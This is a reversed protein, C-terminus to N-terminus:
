EDLVARVLLGCYRSDFGVVTGGSWSEFYWAEGIKYEDEAIYNSWYRCTDDAFIRDKDAAGAAPFFLVKSSDTKDTLIVGKVGSGQYSNTWASTTSNILTEFETKSPTKWNGGWTVTAGDDESELTYLEDSNNYKLSSCDCYDDIMESYKYGECDFYKKGSGSGVQSATYGQTDGWQFYLGTDTVSEAGVNMTAWKIGRIEVYDHTPTPPTPGPETGKLYMIKGDGTILSVNPTLLGEKAAEYAAQNEFEKLYIM